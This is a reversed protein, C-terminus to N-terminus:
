TSETYTILQYLEYIDNHKSNDIFAKSSIKLSSDTSFVVKPNLLLAFLVDKVGLKGFLPILVDCKKLNFAVAVLNLWSFNKDIGHFSDVQIVSNYLTRLPENTIVSVRIGSRSALLKITPASAIADGYKGNWNVFVVHKIDSNKKSFRKIFACLTDLIQILSERLASLRTM